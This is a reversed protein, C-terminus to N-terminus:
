AGEDYHEQIEATSLVRGYVAIEDFTGDAPSAPSAAIDSAAVITTDLNTLFGSSSPTVSYEFAGNVFLAFETGDWTLVAHYKTSPSIGSGEGPTKGNTGIKWNSSGSSIIYVFESGGAEDDFGFLRENEGVTDLSLWGEISWAASPDALPMAAKMSGGGFNVATNSDGSILGTVGPTFTGSYTGDNGGIEDTATTGSGEGLRWYAEPTDALVVGSYTDGDPLLLGAAAMMMRRGRM